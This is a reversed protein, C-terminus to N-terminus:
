GHRLHVEGYWVIELLIKGVEVIEYVLLDRRELMFVVIVAEKVVTAFM